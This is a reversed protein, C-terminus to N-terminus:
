PESALLAELQPILPPLDERITAWVIAPNIGWYVHVIFNRLDAMDQWPVEPHRALFDDPLRNAAEGIVIFNYLVADMIRPDDGFSSDTVGRTYELISHVANLIDEVRHRWARDPM